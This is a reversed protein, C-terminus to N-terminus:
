DSFAYEMSDAVTILGGFMADAIEEDPSLVWQGDELTLPIDVKTTKTPLDEGNLYDTFKTLYRAELEEDSPQQDEPLLAYQFADSLLTEMLSGVAETMDANTFEVTVVATGAKEDEQASLVKYTLNKTLAQFLAAEQSGPSFLSNDTLDEDWYQKLTAPDGKQIAQIASETVSQASPRATGCAAASLLLVLGLALTLMRRKM